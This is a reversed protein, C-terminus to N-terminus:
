QLSVRSLWGKIFTKFKEDKLCLGIYHSGQLVNLIKQISKKDKESGICNMALLTKSGIKGDVLVRSLGIINLATQFYIQARSIGLNVAIDFIEIAVAESWKDVKDLSINDWYVSQYIEKAREIPLDRMHGLYGNKRATDETIGFKTKGGPDLKNDSYGGEFDLIMNFAKEFSM